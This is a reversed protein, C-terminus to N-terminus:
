PIWEQDQYWKITQGLGEVTDPWKWQMGLAEIKTVDYYNDATTYGIWDKDLRLKLANQLGREEVLTDWAKSLRTNVWSLPWDPLYPTVAGLATMLPQFFPIIPKVELGLPEALAKIFVPGYVPEPAAVNYSQGVTGESTAVLLAARGVDDIHVHSTDPGSRLGFVADRKAWHKLLSLAAIFMAHGYRARPGYILTPRIATVPLGHNKHYEYAALEGRWKSREYHNRPRKPDDEKCPCRVPKGYVGVTSVHVFRSLDPADSLVAECVNRTGQHNVQDLLSPSAALDFLGAVHVVADMGAVCKKLTDLDSLDAPMFEVGRSDLERQDSGTRDSARVEHGAESFADVISLGVLGTAGNVLVKM